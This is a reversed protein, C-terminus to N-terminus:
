KLHFDLLIGQITTWNVYDKTHKLFDYDSLFSLLHRFARLVQFEKKIYDVFLTPELLIDSIM